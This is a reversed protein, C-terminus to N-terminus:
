PDFFSWLESMPVLEEEALTVVVLVSEQERTARGRMRASERHRLASAQLVRKEAWLREETIRPQLLLPPPSHIHAAAKAAQPRGRAHLSKVDGGGDIAIVQSEGGGSKRSVFNM